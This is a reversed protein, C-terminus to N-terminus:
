IAKLLIEIREKLRSLEESVGKIQSGKINDALNVAQLMEIAEDTSPSFLLIIAIKDPKKNITSMRRLEKSIKEGALDLSKKVRLRAEAKSM